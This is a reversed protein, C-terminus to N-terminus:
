DKTLSYFARLGRMQAKADGEEAAKRQEQQGPWELAPQIFQRKEKERKEKVLAKMRAHSKRNIEKHTKSM